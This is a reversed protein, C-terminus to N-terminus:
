YVGTLPSFAMSEPIRHFGDTSGGGGGAAVEDPGIDCTAGSRTDGDYDTAEIDSDSGPGIGNGRAVTDTSDLHFDDGAENVFVISGTQASTGPADSAIDSCNNSGGITGSFGDTCDQAWVNKCNVTGASREVGVDCNHFGCNVLLTTGLSADFGRGTGQRFDKFFCNSIKANIDADACTFGRVSASGGGSTERFDCRDFWIFSGGASPSLIVCRYATAGTISMSFAFRKFRVYEDPIGVGDANTTELAYQEGNGEFLMFDTASTTSGNISVANTDPGGVSSRGWAHLWDNASDFNTQEAAECALVSVYARNPNGGDRSDETGNGGAISGTDFFRTKEAM